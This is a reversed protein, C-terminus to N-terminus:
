PDYRLTGPLTIAGPGPLDAAGDILFNGVKPICFV